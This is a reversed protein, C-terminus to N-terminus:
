TLGEGCRCRRPGSTATAPAGEFTINEFTADCTHDLILFGNRGLRITGDSVTGRAAVHLVVAQEVHARWPLIDRAVLAAVARNDQPGPPWHRTPVPLTAGDLSLADGRTHGLLWMCLEPLDTITGDELEASAELQASFDISCGSHASEARPSPCAAERARASALPGSSALNISQQSASYLDNALAAVAANSAGQGACPIEKKESAALDAASPCEASAPEAPGVAAPPASRPSRTLPTPAAAISAMFQCEHGGAALDTHLSLLKERVEKLRPRACAEMAVMRQLLTRLAPPQIFDPVEM